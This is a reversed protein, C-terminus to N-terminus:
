KRPRMLTVTTFGSPHRAVLWRVDNANYGRVDIGTAELLNSVTNRRSAYSETSAGIIRGNKARLRWRWQKTRRQVQLSRPRYIELQYWKTKM